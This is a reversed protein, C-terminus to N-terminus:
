VLGHRQGTYLGPFFLWPLTSHRGFPYLSWPCVFVLNCGFDSSAERYRDHETQNYKQFLLGVVGLRCCSRHYPVIDQKQSRTGAHDCSGFMRRNTSRWFTKKNQIRHTLSCVASKSTRNITPCYRVRGSHTAKYDYCRRNSSSSGAPPRITPIIGGNTPVVLVLAIAAEQAIHWARTARDDVPVKREIRDSNRNKFTFRSVRSRVEPSSFPM